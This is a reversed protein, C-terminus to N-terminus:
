ASLPANLTLLLCGIALRALHAVRDSWSQESMATGWCHGFPLVSFPAEPSGQAEPEERYPDTASDSWNLWVTSAAFMIVRRQCAAGSRPQPQTPSRRRDIRSSRSCAM